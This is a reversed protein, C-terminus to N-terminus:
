TTMRLAQGSFIGISTL